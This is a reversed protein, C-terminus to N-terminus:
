TRGGLVYVYGLKGVKLYVGMHSYRRTKMLPLRDFKNGM